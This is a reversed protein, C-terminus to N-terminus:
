QSSLYYNKSQKEHFTCLSPSQPAWLPCPPIPRKELLRTWGWGSCWTRSWLRLLRWPFTCCQYAYLNNRVNHWHRIRIEKKKLFVFTDAGECVTWHLHTGNMKWVRENKMKRVGFNRESPWWCFTAARCTWSSCSGSASRHDSWPYRGPFKRATLLHKGYTPRYFM